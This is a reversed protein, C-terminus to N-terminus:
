RFLIVSGSAPPQVLTINDFTAYMLKYEPIGMAMGAYVTEESSANTGMFNTTWSTGNSSYATNIYYVGARRERQMRLYVPFTNYGAVNTSTYVGSLALNDNYVVRTNQVVEYGRLVGYASGNTGSLSSRVALGINYNWTAQYEGENDYSALRATLEFPGTVEQCAFQHIAIGRTGAGYLGIQGPDAASPVGYGPLSNVGIDRFVWKGPDGLEVPRLYISPIVERSVSADQSEWELLAGANGETNYYEARLPHLGSTAAGSFTGSVYVGPSSQDWKNIVCKRDVWLRFGGTAKAYFTYTANQNLMINGNWVVKANRDGVMASGIPAGSWNTQLNSVVESFALREGVGDETFGSYYQAYLGTEIAEFVSVASVESSQSAAVALGGAEGVVRYYYTVGSVVDADVYASGVINSALIDYPGGSTESRWITYGLEQSPIVWGLTVFYPEGSASVGTPTPPTMAGSQQRVEMGSITPGFTVTLFELSLKGDVDATATFDKVLARSRAGVEAIIDLSDLKRTGNVDVHFVRQGVSSKDKEFFHLRVLYTEGPLLGGFVNTQAGTRFRQYLATSEAPDPTGFPISPIYVGDTGATGGIRTYLSSNEAVFRGLNVGNANIAYCLIGPTVTFEGSTTEGWESKATVQYYYTTGNVLGTDSYRTTTMGNTLTTYPGGSVESRAIAFEQADIALSLDIVAASDRPFARANAIPAGDTIVELANVLGNAQMTYEIWGSTSPTISKQQIFAKNIAKPGWAANLDFWNQWAVDTVAADNLYTHNFYGRTTIIPYVIEAYHARVTYARTTSFPGLLYTTQGQSRATQYVAEPAPDTVATLDINSTTSVPSGGAYDSDASFSGVAPGGCNIARVRVWVWPRAVVQTSVVDGIPTSATIVYYNTVGNTLGTHLYTNTTLGTALATYPGGSVLSRGVQYGTAGTVNSWTLSVQRDAAVASVDIASPTFTPAGASWAEGTSNTAYCRYVVPSGAPLGSLVASFSQGNVFSDGVYEVHAWDGTAATLKDSTDWCFYVETAQVGGNHVVRGKLLANTEGVPSASLAQVTLAETGYTSFTANSASNMWTAWVWNSARVVSSLRIEDLMGNFSYVYGKGITFLNTSATPQMSTKATSVVRVGNVYWTNTASTASVMQRVHTLHVWQNSVMTNNPQSHRFYSGGDTGSNGYFYNVARSWTSNNTELVMSLEGGYAKHIISQRQTMHAANMWFEVTQSGTAPLSSSVTIGGNAPPANAAGTETGSFLDANGIVGDTTASVGSADVTGHYLNTASNPRSSGGQGMHWVTRYGNTWTAGNTAYAPATADPNGWIAWIRTNTGSILPVQVWVFSTGAPDWKEIEFNLEDLQNGAAFRLDAGDAPSSMSAYSFGTLGDHLKVLVPFNAVTGGGPPNYGSFTIPMTKSWASFDAAQAASVVSILLAVLLGAHLIKM